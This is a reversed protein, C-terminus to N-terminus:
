SRHAAAEEEAGLRRYWLRWPTSHRQWVEPGTAYPPGVHRRNSAAVKDLEYAALFRPAGQYPPRVERVLEYRVARLAHRREAVEPLHVNTYFDNFIDLEEDTAGPPPNVGLLYIAYPAVVPPSTEAVRRYLLSWTKRLGEYVADADWAAETPRAAVDEESLERASLFRPPRFGRAAVAILEYRQEIGANHRASQAFAEAADPKAGVGGRLDWGTWLTYELSTM